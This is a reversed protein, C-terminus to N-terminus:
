NAIIEEALSKFNSNSEIIKELIKNAEDKKSNKLLFLFKKFILLDKQDKSLRLNELKEFYKLIKEDDKILNKELLTSFALISYFKNNSLVIEEFIETSKLIQNSGLYLGAQIYKEAILINKKENQVSIFFITIFSIIISSLIFIIKKSNEKIFSQLSIKTKINNDLEQSM